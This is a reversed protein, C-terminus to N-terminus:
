IHQSPFIAVQNSLYARPYYGLAMYTWKAVEWSTETNHTKIKDESTGVEGHM